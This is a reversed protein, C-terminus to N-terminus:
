RFAFGESGRGEADERPIRDTAEPGGAMFHWREGGCASLQRTPIAATAAPHPRSRSCQEKGTAKPPDLNVNAGLAEHALVRQEEAESSPLPRPSTRIAGLLPKQHSQDPSGRFLHLMPDPLFSQERSPVLPELSGRWGTSLIPRSGM